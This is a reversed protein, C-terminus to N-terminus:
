GSIVVNSPTTVESARNAGTNADEQTDIVIVGPEDAKDWPGMATAVLSTAEHSGKTSGGGPTFGRRTGATDLAKHAKGPSFAAVRKIPSPKASGKKSAVVTPQSGASTSKSATAIDPSSVIDNEPQNIPRALQAFDEAGRVVDGGSRFIMVFALCATVVSAPALWMWFNRKPKIGANLIADRMRDTSLQCEPIESRLRLLDSKVARLDAIVGSTTDTDGDFAAFLQEDENRKM